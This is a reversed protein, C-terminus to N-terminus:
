GNVIEMLKAAPTSTVFSVRDVAGNCRVAVRDRVEDPPAVIAFANLIEDDILAAMESWKNERALATLRDGTEEWGHLALVPRYAPTSAYFALHPRIEAVAQKIEADTGTALFIPAKVTFGDPSRGARQFGTNLAPLTRERVWRETSFAHCLFGDAVEGAVRTMAEGVGAVLVPPTGFEHRPPTFMPTMLTHRYYTGEFALPEGESWSQWIARLAVVYERMQAAPQGWPMSFRRTIHAKVQSGLGLSLRGRSFRQLDYATYALSMPSRALAVAISTGLEIRETRSAALALPLFPDGSVEGTFVGAYGAAEAAAAEDGCTELAGIHTDVLM